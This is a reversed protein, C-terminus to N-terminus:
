IIRRVQQLEIPTAQLRHTPLLDFDEGCLSVPSGFEISRSGLLRGPYGRAKSGRRQCPRRQQAIRFKKPLGAAARRSSRARTRRPHILLIQNPCEATKMIANNLEQSIESTLRNGSLPLYQAYTTQPPRLRAAARVGRRARLGCESRCLSDSTCAM